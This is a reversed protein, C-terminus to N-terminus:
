IRYKPFFTSETIDNCSITVLENYKLLNHIKKGIFFENPDNRNFTKKFKYLSDSDSKYGGGVHFKKLGKECGWKAIEYYLLSTPQLYKYQQLAGGLHGHVYKESHLVLISAIKSDELFANIIFANNKLYKRTDDYFRDDFLYYDHAENNKMTSQYIHKFEDLTKLETDIESTVNNKQAKRIMQRCKSEMNNWITDHDTLDIHITKRIQALESYGEFFDHNQILPHFRDFQSIINNSNCYESFALFFDNKLSELNNVTVSTEYLPGGYGYASSIDFYKCKEIKDKLNKSDAIDRLMFPYAVKGKDSEFYFLQPEGDGFNKFPIFYNHLFYVDSDTYGKVIRNWPAEDKIIKSDQM